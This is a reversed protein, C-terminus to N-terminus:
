KYSFRFSSLDPSYKRRRKLEHDYIIMGLERFFPYGITEYDYKNDNLIGDSNVYITASLMFEVNNQFDIIYAVDTLYGYSWGTKNFSRIYSPIKQKGDKFWFFKTYSEFFESTDYKPYASEGPLESMYNLLMNRDAPDLRFRKGSEVSEPFIVSQLIQQLDPLPVSNHTTFDMPTRILSDYRNYHANGILIKKSFDFPQENYSAAQGYVLNGGADLFRLPNGHRNQEETMPVFRRTIRGSSYGMQQLRANLSEQGVFEYLRNYADNDSVVFIKKVYHGVSPLGTASTSDTEVRSQGGFASDTLMTTGTGLNRINLDNLKELAMLAVPLKVMSAPNFYDTTDVRLYHNSFQPRNRADRDIVTYIIQYHFTEPHDLVNLLQPSAKKRILKELQRSNVAQGCVDAAFACAMFVSFIIKYM